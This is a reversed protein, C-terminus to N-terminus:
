DVPQNEEAVIANDAAYVLLTLTGTVCVQVQGMIVGLDPHAGKMASTIANSFARTHRSLSPLRTALAVYQKQKRCHM